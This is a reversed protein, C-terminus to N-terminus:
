VREIDTSLGAAGTVEDFQDEAVRKITPMM